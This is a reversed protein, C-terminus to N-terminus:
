ARPTPPLVVHGLRASWPRSPSSSRGRPLGCVAPECNEALVAPWSGRRAESAARSLVRAPRLGTGAASLLEVTLYWVGQDCARPWLSLLHPSGWTPGCLAPGQLRGSWRGTPSPSLCAGHPERAGLSGSAGWESVRSLVLHLRWRAGAGGPFTRSWSAVGWWPSGPDPGEAGMDLPGQETPTVSPTLSVWSLPCLEEDGPAAQLQPPVLLPGLPTALSTLFGQGRHTPDLHAPCRHSPPVAYTLTWCPQSCPQSPCPDAWLRLEVCSFRVHFSFGLVRLLTLRSHGAPSLHPSIQGCEGRWPQTRLRWLHAHPSVSVPCEPGSLM